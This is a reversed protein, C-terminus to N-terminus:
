SKIPWAGVAQLLFGLLLFILGAFASGSARYREVVRALSLEKNKAVNESSGIGDFLVPIAVEEIAKAKDL